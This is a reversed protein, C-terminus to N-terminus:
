MIVFNSPQSGAPVCHCHVKNYSGRPLTHGSLKSNNEWRSREATERPGIRTGDMSALSTFTPLLEIPLRRLHAVSSASTQTPCPTQKSGVRFRAHTPGPALHPTRPDSFPSALIPPRPAVGVRAAHVTSPVGAPGLARLIHSKAVTASSCTRPCPERSFAHLRSCIDPLEPRPSCRVWFMEYPLSTIGSTDWSLPQNFASATQRTWVVPPSRSPCTHNKLHAGPTCPLSLAHAAPRRRLLFCRTCFLPGVRHLANANAPRVQFMSQMSRVKSTDFSLPQNFARAKQASRSPSPMGHPIIRSAPHPTHTHARARAHPLGPVAQASPLSHAGPVM